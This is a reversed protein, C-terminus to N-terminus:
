RCDNESLEFIFKECAIKFTSFDLEQENETDINRFGTEISILNALGRKSLKNRLGLIIKEILDQEENEENQEEEDNEENKNEEEENM